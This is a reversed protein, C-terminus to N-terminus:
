SNLFGFVDGSRLTTPGFAHVGRANCQVTYRRTVRDYWRPSFAIELLLMNSKLDVRLRQGPFTLARPVAEEVEVWPLPLLKANEVTLSLTIQEGFLVRRESFHRRYRLDRLCYTAWIDTIAAILLLLLGIILLLPQRFLIGAIIIALSLYYWLKNM